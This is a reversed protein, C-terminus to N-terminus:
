YSIEMAHDCLDYKIKLRKFCAIYRGSIILRNEFIQVLKKKRNTFCFVYQNNVMELSICVILM